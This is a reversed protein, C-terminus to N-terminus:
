QDGGVPNRQAQNNYQNAQSILTAQRVENSVGLVEEKITDLKEQLM